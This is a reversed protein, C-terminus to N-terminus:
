KDSIKMIGGYHEVSLLDSGVSLLLFIIHYRHSCSTCWGVGVGVMYTPPLAGPM